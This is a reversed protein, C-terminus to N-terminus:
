RPAHRRLEALAVGILRPPRMWAHSLPDRGGECLSGAEARPSRRPLGARRARPDPGARRCRRRRHGTAPMISPDLVDLDVTVYVRNTLHAVAEEIWDTRGVVDRALYIAPRARDVYEAEERSLSRVGVSVTTEVHDRMRRCACAHSNASGEYEARLDAHADLHLISLDDHREALARVIGPTVSHEGGLTLLFQDGARDLIAAAAESIRETMADPDDAPPIEPLVHYPIAEADLALEEDWTEVQASAALIAAPGRATGIGYTVSGEYPIPLVLVSSGTFGSDAEPRGLFTM